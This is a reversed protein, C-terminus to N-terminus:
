ELSLCAGAHSGNCKGRVDPRQYFNRSAVRGCRFYASIASRNVLSPGSISVGSLQVGAAATPQMIKGYREQFTRLRGM